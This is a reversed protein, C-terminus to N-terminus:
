VNNFKNNKCNYKTKNFFEKKFLNIKVPFISKKASELNISKKSM